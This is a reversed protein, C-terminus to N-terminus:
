ASRNVRAVGLSAVGSPQARAINPLTGLGTSRSIQRPSSPRRSASPRDGAVTPPHRIPARPVSQILSSAAEAEKVQL